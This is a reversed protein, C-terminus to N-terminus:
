KVNDQYAQYYLKELAYKFAAQKAAEANDAAVKGNVNYEFLFDQETFIYARLNVDAQQLLKPTFMGNRYHTTSMLANPYIFMVKWYGSSGAFNLMDKKTPNQDFADAEEGYTRKWYAEYRALTEEKYEMKKNNHTELMQVYPATRMDQPALMIIGIDPRQMRESLYGANAISGLSLTLLLCLFITRFLKSM